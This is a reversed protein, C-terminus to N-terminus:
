RWWWWCPREPSCTTLVAVGHLALIAEGGRSTIADCVIEEFSYFVSVTTTTTTYRPSSGASSSPDRVRQM